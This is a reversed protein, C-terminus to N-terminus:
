IYVTIGHKAFQSICRDITADSPIALPINDPNYHTGRRSHKDRGMEHYPLLAVAALPTHGEAYKPGLAKIFTATAEINEEDANIGEILPIRFQIVAGIQALMRINDLIRSNSVGTVRRHKEDAMVKLDVLFLDVLPAIEQVVEAKAYLTTDLARHLGRRGLEALLPKIESAQMLPEGGSITVGGGSEVMIEREKEVEAMLEDISWQRGCVELALTPCSSLSSDAKGSDPILNDDSPLHSSIYELQHPYIGCSNCGICKNRKFLWEPQPRWSEPNHCWVCRLPCGKAFLTTRIGPGDNIAYRKIDFVIM